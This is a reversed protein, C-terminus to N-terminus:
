GIKTGFILPSTPGLPELSLHKLAVARPSLSSIDSMLNM